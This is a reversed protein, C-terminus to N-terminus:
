KSTVGPNVLETSVVKSKINKCEEYELFSVFRHYKNYEQIGSVTNRKHECRFPLKVPYFFFISSDLNQEGLIRYGKRTSSIIIAVSRSIATAGSVSGM